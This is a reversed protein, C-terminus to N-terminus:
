RTSFMDVAGFAYCPLLPTGSQIALKVFGFVKLLNVRERQYRTLMVEKHGGPFVVLSRGKKLNYAATTRGYDVCGVFLCTERLLPFRLMSSDALIRFDKFPLSGLLFNAWHPWLPLGHPHIAVIFPSTGLSLNPVVSASLYSSWMAYLKNRQFSPRPAGDTLEPHQLFQLVSWAIVPLILFLITPYLFAVYATLPFTTAFNAFYLIYCHACHFTIVTLLNKM